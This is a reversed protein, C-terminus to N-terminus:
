CKQMFPPKIFLTSNIIKHIATYNLIVIHANGKQFSPNTEEGHDAFM